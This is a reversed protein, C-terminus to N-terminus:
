DAIHNRLLMIGVVTVVAFAFTVLQGSTLAAACLAADFLNNLWRPLSRKKLRDLKEQPCLHYYKMIIGTSITILVVAIAFYALAFNSAWAVGYFGGSIVMMLLIANSIFDIWFKRCKLYKM